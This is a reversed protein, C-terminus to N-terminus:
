HYFVWSNSMICFIIHTYMNERSFMSEKKKKNTKCINLLVTNLYTCILFKEIRTYIDRYINRDNRGMEGPTSNKGPNGQFCPSQIHLKCPFVSVPLFFRHPLIIANKFVSGPFPSKFHFQTHSFFFPKFGSLPNYSVQCTLTGASM